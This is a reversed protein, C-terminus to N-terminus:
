CCEEVRGRCCKMLALQEDFTKALRAANKPSSVVRPAITSAAAPTSERGLTGAHLRLGRGEDDRQHSGHVGMPLCAADQGQGSRADGSANRRCAAGPLAATRGQASRGAAGATRRMPRGLRGPHRASHRPRRPWLDKRDTCRSITPMSLWWGLVQALLGATPIYADPWGMKLLLAPSHLM